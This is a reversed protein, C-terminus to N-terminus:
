NAATDHSVQRSHLPRVCKESIRSATHSPPHQNPTLPDRYPPGKVAMWNTFHEPQEVKRSTRKSHPLQKLNGGKMRKIGHRNQPTIKKNQYTQTKISQILKDQPTLIHLSELSTSRHLSETHHLNQSKNSHFTTHNSTASQKSYTAPIGIRHCERGAQGHVVM